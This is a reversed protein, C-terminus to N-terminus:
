KSNGTQVEHRGVGFSALEKQESGCASSFDSTPQSDTSEEPSATTEFHLPKTARGSAPPEPSGQQQGTATRAGEGILRARRMRESGTEQGSKAPLAPISSSGPQGQEPGRSLIASSAALFSSSKPTYSGYKM